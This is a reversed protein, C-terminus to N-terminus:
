DQQTRVSDGEVKYWKLLLQVGKAHVVLIPTIILISVDSGNKLSHMTKDKPNGLPSM